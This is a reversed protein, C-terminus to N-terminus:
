NLATWGNNDKKNVIENNKLLLEVVEKHGNM